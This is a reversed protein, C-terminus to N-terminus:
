GDSIRGQTPMGSSMWYIECAAAVALLVAVVDIVM